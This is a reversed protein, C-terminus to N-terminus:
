FLTQLRAFVVPSQDLDDLRQALDLRFEDSVLLCIGVDTKIDNDNFQEDYGAKGADFFLGAGLESRYFRWIYDSNLLMYRNGSFEKYDYGRLSGVGGLFFRNFLPLYDDSYGANARLM